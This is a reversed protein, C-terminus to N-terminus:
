FPTTTTLAPAVIWPFVTVPLSHSWEEHPGSGILSVWDVPTRSKNAWGPLVTDPLERDAFSMPTYLLATPGVVM